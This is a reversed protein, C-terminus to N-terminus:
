KEQNPKWCNTVQLQKKHQMDTDNWVDKLKLWYWWFIKYQHTHTDSEKKKSIFLSMCVFVISGFNRFIAFDLLFFFFLFKWVVWSVIYIYGVQTGRMKWRMLHPKDLFLWCVAAVIIFLMCDWDVSLNSHNKFLKMLDKLFRKKKKHKKILKLYATTVPAFLPIPNSVTLCSAAAPTVTKNVALFSFLPVSAMDNSWPRPKGFTSNWWSSTCSRWLMSPKALKM